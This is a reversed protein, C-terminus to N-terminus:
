LNYKLNECLQLLITIVHAESSFTVINFFDDPNLEDLIEIMASITQNM